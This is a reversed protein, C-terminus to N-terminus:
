RHPIGRQFDAAALELQCIIARHRDTRPFPTMGLAAMAAKSDDYLPPASRSLADEAHARMSESEILVKIVLPSEAGWRALVGLVERMLDKRIM